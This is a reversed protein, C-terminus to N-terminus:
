VVVESRLMFTPKRLYFQWHTARLNSFRFGKLILYMSVYICVRISVWINPPQTLMMLRIEEASVDGSVTSAMGAPGFSTFNTHCIDMGVDHSRSQNNFNRNLRDNNNNNNNRQGGGFGGGGAGGRNNNGHSGGSNGDDTHAFRCRSGKNCKGQQWFHCVKPAMTLEKYIARTEFCTPKDLKNAVEQQYVVGFKQAITHDIKKQLHPIIDKATCPILIPTTPKQIRLKPNKSKGLNGRWFQEKTAIRPM